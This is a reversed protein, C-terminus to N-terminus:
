QNSIPPVLLKHLSVVLAIPTPFDIEKIEASLCEGVKSLTTDDYPKPM